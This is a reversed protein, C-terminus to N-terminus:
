IHRDIPNTRQRKKRPLKPNKIPAYRSVLTELRSLYKDVAVGLRPSRYVLRLLGATKDPKLREVVIPGGDGFFVLHGDDETPTQGPKTMLPKGYKSFMRKVVQDAQKKQASTYLLRVIVEYLEDNYFGFDVRGKLTNITVWHRYRKLSARKLISTASRVGKLKKRARRLRKRHKSEQELEVSESHLQLGTVNELVTSVSTGWRFEGYGGGTLGRVPYSEAHVVGATMFVPVLFLYRM